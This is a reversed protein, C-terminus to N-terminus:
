RLPVRLEVMTGQGPASEVELSGGAQAVRRALSKLGHGHKVAAPDFGRGDDRVRLEIWGRPARLEIAVQRAQSHRAINTLIEKFGLFAHRRLLLPLHLDPLPDPTATFRWQQNVLLLASTDKMREAMEALTDFKPDSLWVIDRVSQATEVAVRNIGSLEERAETTFQADSALLESNLAISALNGGVEDHLDGAIETRLRMVAALHAERVRWAVVVAALFSLGLTWRFWAKKWVPVGLLAFQALGGESRGFENTVVLRCHLRADAPLGRLAHTVAVPEVGAGVNTLLTVTRLDTSTGWEVFAATAAGNPQVIGLLTAGDTFVADVALRLAEPAAPPTTFTWPAGRITGFVNSAVIRAHFPRAPRLGIINELLSLETAGALPATERRTGNPGFAELWAISPQGNASVRAALTAERGDARPMEISGPVPVDLPAESATTLSAPSVERPAASDSTADFGNGTEDHFTGDSATDFRWYARLGPEAGTLTRHMAARLEAASWATTWVRVEDIAGNWAAGAGKGVARGLRFERRGTNFPRRVDPPRTAIVAGNVLYSARHARDDRVYAVHHWVGTALSINTSSWGPEVRPNLCLLFESDYEGSQSLMTEWGTLPADARVWCEVTFDGTPPIVALAQIGSAQGSALGLARGPGARPRFAFSPSITRGHRNTAVLRASCHESLEALEEAIDTFADSESLRLPKTAHDFAGGAGWEFWVDTEEGAPHVAGRLTVAHPRASGSADTAAFGAVDRLVPAGVTTFAILRGMSFGAANSLVARFLYTTAPALDKVLASAEALSNTRALLRGPVPRLSNADAGLEFRIVGGDDNLAAGRLVASRGNVVAPALTFVATDRPVPPAEESWAARVVRLDNGSGSLDMSVDGGGEAFRWHAILNTHTGITGRQVLQQVQAGDLAVNWVSVDALHGALTGTKSTEYRGLRLPEHNSCPGPRGSWPQQDALVADLYLRGGNADVVFALHHWAGDAPLPARLGARPGYVANARDRFYYALVRGDEIQVGYGNFTGSLYKNLLSGAAEDCQFWFAVTIPLANLEPAHPAFAYEFRHSFGLSGARTCETAAFAACWLLLVSRLRLSLRRCPLRMTSNFRFRAASDIM